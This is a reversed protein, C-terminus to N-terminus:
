GATPTPQHPEAPAAVEPSSLVEHLRKLTAYGPNPIRGRVFKSIWSHSVDARQCLCPWDGRRSELLRKVETDLDTPMCGDYYFM